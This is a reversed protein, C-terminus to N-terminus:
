CGAHPLAFLRSQPLASANDVNVKVLELQGQKAAVMEELAPMLTKCPKCRSLAHFGIIVTRESSRQM